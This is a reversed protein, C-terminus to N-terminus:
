RVHGQRSDRDPRRPIRNQMRSQVFLAVGLVLLTLVITEIM